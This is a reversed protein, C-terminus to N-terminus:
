VALCDGKCYLVDVANYFHEEIEFINESIGNRYKQPYNFTFNSALFGSGQYAEFLVPMKCLLTATKLRKRLALWRLLRM